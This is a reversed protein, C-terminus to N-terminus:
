WYYRLRKAWPSNPYDRKLRVYWARRQALPVESGCESFGSPAYCMVARYLAYAKDRANARPNAIVADYFAARGNMQGAFGRTQGGLEDKGPGMRSWEGMDGLDNLRFFEGLCLQAAMDAPNTALARASTAIPACPYAGDGVRGRTFLAAQPEQGSLPLATDRAFDAYRGHTLEGALLTYLATDREKPEIKRDQAVKRLLPPAASNVILINRLTPDTIPSDAALAADVKGAREWNLALGLEVLPRQWLGTAGGLLEQWFGAENADGLRALAMGRLMQRSFGLNSYTPRRADDPILDLVRRYDQAYYYAHTAQLYGFLDGHGAFLPAQAALADASLSSKPAKGEEGTENRMAVLAQTAALMAGDRATDQAARNFLLKNDIEQILGAASRQAPNAALLMGAYTKSLAAFDGALWQGRRLLGHASEAYRGTPWAKLYAALALLGRKVAARDVKSQDYFGYEGFAPAQGAAFETRILMYAATERVWPDRAKALQGFTERATDWSEGYFADAGRLYALFERGAASTVGTPWGGGAQSAGECRHVLLGRADSLLTREAGPVKRNAQMAATFDREGSALSACRSGAYPSSASDGEDVAPYLASTLSAWDIFVDGYPEINYSMQGYSLGNSSHGSRDALLFMLNIRSDNGPALMGLGSCSYSDARLNVGGECFGGACAHAAGAATILGLGAALQAIRRLM